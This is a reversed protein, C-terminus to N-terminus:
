VSVEMEQPQTVQPTEELVGLEAVVALQVKPVLVLIVRAERMVKALLVQLLVPTGHVVVVVVVLHQM